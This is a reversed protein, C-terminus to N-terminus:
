DLDFYSGPVSYKYQVSIHDVFDLTILRKFGDYDAYFDTLAEALSDESHDYDFYIAPTIGWYKMHGESVENRFENVFAENLSYVDTDSCGKYWDEETALDYNCSVTVSLLPDYWDENDYKGSEKLEYHLDQYEITFELKDIEESDKQLKALFGNLDMPNNSKEENVEPKNGDIISCGSLCM